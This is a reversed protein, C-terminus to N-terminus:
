LFLQCLNVLIIIDRLVQTLLLVTVLVQIRLNQNQMKCANQNGQQQSILALVTQKKTMVKFTSQTTEDSDSIAEFFQTHSGKLIKDVQNCILKEVDKELTYVKPVTYILVKEQWNDVKHHNM